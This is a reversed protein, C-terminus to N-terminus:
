GGKYKSQTEYMYNTQFDSSTVQIKFTNLIEARYRYFGSYDFGGKVLELEELTLEKVNSKM